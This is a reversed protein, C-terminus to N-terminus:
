RREERREDWWHEEVVSNKEQEIRDEADTDMAGTDVSEEEVIDEVEVVSRVTVGGEAGEVFMGEVVVVDRGDEVLMGEVDSKDRVVRCLGVLYEEEKTCGQSGGVKQEGKGRM